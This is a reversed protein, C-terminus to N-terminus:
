SLVPLCCRHYAVTLLPFLNLPVFPSGAGTQLPADDAAVATQGGWSEWGAAGAHPERGVPPFQRLKASFNLGSLLSGRGM